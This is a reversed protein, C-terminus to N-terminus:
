IDINPKGLRFYQRVAKEVIYSLDRDNEHCYKNIAAKTSPYFRICIPNQKKEKVKM